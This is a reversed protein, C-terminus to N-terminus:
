MTKKSLIEKWIKFDDLEPNNLLDHFATYCRLNADIYYGACKCANKIDEADYGLYKMILLIMYLKPQEREDYIIKNITGKDIGTEKAIECQKVGRIDMRGRIIEAFKVTM